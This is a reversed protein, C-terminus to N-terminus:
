RAARVHEREAFRLCTASHETRAGARRWGHSGAKPLFPSPVIFSSAPPIASCVGHRNCSRWPCALRQVEGRRRSLLATLYPKPFPSVHFEPRKINLRHRVAAKPQIAPGHEAYNWLNQPLFATLWILLV